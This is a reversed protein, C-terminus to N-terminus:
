QDLINSNDNRIIGTKRNDNFVNDTPSILQRKRPEIEQIGELANPDFGKIKIQEDDDETESASESLQHFESVDTPIRRLFPHSSKRDNMSATSSNRSKKRKKKIVSSIVSIGSEIRPLDTKSVSNSLMRIFSGSSDNRNDIIASMMQNNSGQNPDLLNASNSNMYIDEPDFSKVIDEDDLEKAMFESHKASVIVEATSEAWPEDTRTEEAARTYPLEDPVGEDWFNDKVLEPHEAHMEDVILYAVQLNRDILFNSEFDDDDEGFPNILGEAVKLWGMYFFFQLFTFVPVVLDMTHGPYNKEPDLFQRGMLSALFFTYVALTVVQTYVLPVSIWDYSILMGCGVRFNNIEKIITQFAFDEKIRGEKRARQAIAGAWVLTLWYKPHQFIPLLTAKVIKEINRGLFLM